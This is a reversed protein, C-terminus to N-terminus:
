SGLRNIVKNAWENLKEHNTIKKLYYGENKINFRKALEDDPLENEVKGIGAINWEQFLIPSYTKVTEILWPTKLHKKEFEKLRPNNNHKKEFVAYMKNFKILAQNRNDHNIQSMHQKDNDFMFYLNSPSKKPDVGMGNTKHLRFGHIITKNAVANRTGAYKAYRLITTRAM